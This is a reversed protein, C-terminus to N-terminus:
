PRPADVDGDHRRQVAGVYGEDALIGAVLRDDREADVLGVAYRRDRFVQAAFGVRVEGDFLVDFDNGVEDVEASEALLVFVMEPGGDGGVAFLQEDM